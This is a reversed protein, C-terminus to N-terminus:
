PFPSRISITSSALEVGLVVASGPCKVQEALRHM